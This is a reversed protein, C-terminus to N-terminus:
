LEASYSLANKYSSIAKRYKKKLEYSQGVTALLSSKNSRKAKLGKTCIEISEELREEQHLLQGLHWYPDAFTKDFKIAMRFHLEAAPKNDAYHLNILAIAQHLRSYGPEEYLLRDLLKLTHEHGEEYIHRMAEEIYEDIWKIKEMFNNKLTHDICVCIMSNLIYVDNGM